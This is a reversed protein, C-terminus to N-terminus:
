FLMTISVQSTNSKVEPQGNDSKLKFKKTKHLKKNKQKISYKKLPKKTKQKYKQFKKPTM